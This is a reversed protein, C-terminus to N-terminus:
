GVAEGYFANAHVVEPMKLMAQNAFYERMGDTYKEIELESAWWEVQITQQLDSWFTNCMLYHKQVKNDENLSLITGPMQEPMLGVGHDRVEITRSDKNEGPLVKVMIQQALVRRQQPTM